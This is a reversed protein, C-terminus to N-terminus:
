MRAIPLCANGEDADAKAAIRFVTYRGVADYRSAVSRPGAAIRLCGQRSLQAQREPAFRLGPSRISKSLESCDPVLRSRPVEPHSLLGDDLRGTTLM